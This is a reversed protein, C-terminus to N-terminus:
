SAPLDSELVTNKVGKLKMGKMVESKELPVMGSVPAQM